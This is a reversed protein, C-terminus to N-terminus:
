MLFKIPNKAMAIRQAVLYSAEIAGANKATL